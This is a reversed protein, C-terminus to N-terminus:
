VITRAYSSLGYASEVDYIKRCGYILVSDYYGLDEYAGTEAWVDGINVGVIVANGEM